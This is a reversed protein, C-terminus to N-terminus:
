VTRLDLAHRIFDNDNGASWWIVGARYGVDFADPSIVVSRRTGIEYAILQVHNTLQANQDIKGLITFRGLPAPDSLVAAVTGDGVQRSQSGDARQLDVVTGDKDIRTVRCWVPDCQTEGRWAAPMKRVEGTVLNRLQTTGSAATMGDALWPSATLKWDGAVSQSDVAGGVLAVSHVVTTGSPGGAVWRVRGDALVLDSDSDDSKLDGVATTLPRAAGGSLDARWLTAATRNSQEVWVLVKGDTVVAPFSPYDKQPLSRIARVSGNPQRLLLRQQKGDRSPASGVSTEADLFALPRYATGDALTPSLAARKAQPWALAAAVPAPPPSRDISPLVLLALSAAIATLTGAPQLRTTM